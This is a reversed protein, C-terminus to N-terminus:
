TSSRHMRWERPSLGYRARFIRSFHEPSNFGWTADADLVPRLSAPVPGGTQELLALRVVRHCSAELHDTTLLNTQMQTCIRPAGGTLVPSRLRM